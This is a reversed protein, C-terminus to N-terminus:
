PNSKNRKCLVDYQKTTGYIVFFFSFEAPFLYFHVALNVQLELAAVAKKGDEFVAELNQLEAMSEKLRKAYEALVATAETEGSEKDRSM